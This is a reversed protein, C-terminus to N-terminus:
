TGLPLLLHPTTQAQLSSNGPPAAELSNNIILIKINISKMLKLGARCQEAWVIGPRPIWEQLVPFARSTEGPPNLSPWMETFMRLTGFLERIKQKRPEPSAPPSPSSGDAPSPHPASGPSIGKGFSTAKGLHLYLAFCRRRRGAVRRYFLSGPILCPVPIPLTKWLSRTERYKM